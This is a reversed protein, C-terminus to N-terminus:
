NIISIPGNYITEKDDNLAIKYFYTGMPLPEGKYTGDWPAEYGVSEFVVSGWRNFITVSCEPYVKELYGIVFLDNKGDFNPTIVTPFIPNFDDCLSTVISVTDISAACNEDEIKYILLNTGIGINTLNTTPSNIDSLEGTGTIFIWSVTQGSLPQTGNLFLSGNEICIVTDNINITSQPMKFVNMTDSTSICSGNTVTWIFHNWGAGLNTATATSLNVDNISAGLDTTWTGLGYLPTSATLQSTLDNCAILTDLTNAPLPNQSVIVIITDSTSGCSASNITWVISSTGFSLNNIGTLNAFQNNFTAQGSLLTWEGTGSTAPIAEIVASTIQCLSITDELIVADSPFDLVQIQFTCTQANSSSDEVTYTLYTTGIPFVDGSTLGSLDTQSIFAFCNDNFIPDAYNVIPDCTSINSPCVITPSVNENIVLNLSCQATNGGADMVELQVITTGSQIITGAAPTQIISYGPCNDLVLATSGYFGLTYDCNAGNNIAAPIPCTITPAELDIPTLLTICTSNNGQADTLTILVATTGGGTSGAIPNQTITMTSISSCNDTAIVQSSLNPVLYQCSSNITVDFSSPCTIVPDTNDVTILSFNCTAANNSEDIVTMTIQTNASLLTGNAPSQSITLASSPSCNDSIVVLSSYDLLSGSCNADMNLYQVTPCIITPITQDVVTIQYTCTESNGAQDTATISINHNGIALSTGSIPSQTYTLLGQPTCNDTGTALSTVAPITYNCGTNTGVISNSPCNIIPSITDLPTVNFSCTGINGSEDTGNIIVTVMGNIISGVTPSQSYTVDTTFFCNELDTVINMYNPLVSSCSSNSYVTQNSPCNLVPKITDIFLQNIGCSKANGTPDIVTLNIVQNVSAPTGPIPSQTFTMLSSNSTCNDAWSISSLYNPIAATCNANLYTTIPTPCSITPKITDIFGVTFQCTRPTSPIGGTMTITVLQNASIITAPAPSQSFFFSGIPVCNDTGIVLSSYDLLAANCSTNAFLVQTAPCTITPLITDATLAMFSCESSNGFEDTATIVIQVSVSHGTVITGPIPSQSYTVLGSCNNSAVVQGTYDGVNGQCISNLYITPNSPCSTIAPPINDIINLTFSCQATNGAEDEATLIITTFDGPLLPVITLPPINQTITINISDTCNDSLTLMKESYNEIMTGCSNNVSQALSIPCTIIPNQDDTGTVVFNDIALPSGNIITNNYNFRVGLLFTTYNLSLPLSITTVSWSGLTSPLASGIATWTSGGNISYILEGYDDTNGNIKYDFSAQIASACMGNVSTYAIAQNIGSLSNTYAYQDQGTPGCGAIGGGQSIYLSYTGVQSTGNGACVGKLWSNPSTNGSYIWNGSSPEFNSSYLTAQGFTTLSLFLTIPLLLKRLM